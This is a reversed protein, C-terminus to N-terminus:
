CGSAEGEVWRAVAAVFRRLDGVRGLNDIVRGDDVEVYEHVLVNRFGMARAVAQAVTAPVVGHAGLRRVADANTETVPWGEAAVIHHAVRGCGEIATIFYYKVAALETRESLLDERGDFAALGDLDESIRRLLRDVRERDVM